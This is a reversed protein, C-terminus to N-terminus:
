HLIIRNNYLLINGGYSGSSIVMNGETIDVNPKVSYIDLYPSTQANSQTTNNVYLSLYMEKIQGDGYIFDDVSVTNSEVLYFSTDPNSNIDFTASLGVYADPFTPIVGIDDTFQKKVYFTNPKIKLTKM